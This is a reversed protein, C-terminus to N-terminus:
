SILLPSNKLFKVLIDKYDNEREALECWKRAPIKRGDQLTFGNYVYGIYPVSWTITYDYNSLKLKTKSNKLAETDIIDRFPNGTEWGEWYRPTSIVDDNAQAIADVWDEVIEHLEQTFRPNIHFTTM